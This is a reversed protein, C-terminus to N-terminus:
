PSDPGFSQSRSLADCTSSSLATATRRQVFRQIPAPVIRPGAVGDHKRGAAGAVILKAIEALPAFPERFQNVTEGRRVAWNTLFRSVAQLDYPLRRLKRM